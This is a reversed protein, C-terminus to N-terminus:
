EGKAEWGSCAPDKLRIDSAYGHTWGKYILQCKYYRHLSRGPAVSYKCTKCTEGEPGSGPLRYHGQQKPEPTRKGVEFLEPQTMAVQRLRTQGCGAAELDGVQRMNPLTNAQAAPVKKRGLRAM